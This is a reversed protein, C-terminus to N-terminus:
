ARRSSWRAAAVSPTASRGGTATTAALAVIAAALTEKMPAAPPGATAAATCPSAPAIWPLACRGEGGPAHGAAHAAAHYLQVNIRLDPDDVNVDPRAGVRDRFRDCVADKVRLATFMSNGLGPLTGHASVALTGAAGLYREWPVERAHAYLDDAGRCAFDDLAPAGAHRLAPAPQGPLAGRRQGLLVRRRAAGGGRLCRAPRRDRRRVPARYAPALALM